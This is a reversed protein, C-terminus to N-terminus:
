LLSFCVHSFDLRLQNKQRCESRLVKHIIQAIAICWIEGHLEDARSKSANSKQPNLSIEFTSIQNISHGSLTSDTHNNTTLFSSKLDLRVRTVSRQPM